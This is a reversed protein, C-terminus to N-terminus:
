NNFGEIKKEYTAINAEITKGQRNAASAYQNKNSSIMGTVAGDFGDALALFYGPDYVRNEFILELMEGSEEDGSYSYKYTNIFEPVVLKSSHYAFLDLFASATEIDKYSVPIGYGDGQTNVYCYYNQQNEDFKPFPLVGVRLNEADAMRALVDLVEGAFLTTGNQMAVQINSYSVEVYSDDSYLSIIKDIVDSGRGDNIAVKFKGGENTVFREGCGFFLGRNNHAHTLFGIIDADAGESFTIKDDGSRDKCVKQCMELCKDMTWKGSRVLDYIDYGSLNQDYVDKNFFMIWTAAMEHIGFDGNISQIKGNCTFDEFWAQDWWDTTYDIDLSYANYFNATQFVQIGGECGAIYKGGGAAMDAKFGNDWGAGDVKITCNYLDHMVQNREFVADNIAENNLNEVWIESANNFRDDPDSTRSAFLFEKGGFDIDLYDPHKEKGTLSELGASTTTTEESAKTTEDPTKSTTEDPTKSTTEDPTKVTTESNKTTQTTTTTTTEATKTTTTEKDTDSQCGYALVCVVSLIFVALILAIIKKM